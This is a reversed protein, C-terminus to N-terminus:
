NFKRNLGLRVISGRTEFTYGLQPPTPIGAITINGTLNEKGLDYYLYEAKFSWRDKMAYEAGLGVTWGAKLVNASAPIDYNLLFATRHVNAEYTSWGLALGGTGYILLNNTQTFGLRGRLTSFWQLNQKVTTTYTAFPLFGNTITTSKGEIAALSLDAEVGYVMKGRQINYGLQLGALPGTPNNAVSSPIVGNNVLIALALTNGVIGTSDQDISGGFHGGYYFGNWNFAPATEASVSHSALLVGATAVAVVWKSRVFAGM